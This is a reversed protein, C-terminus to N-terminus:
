DSLEIYVLLPDETDAMSDLYEGSSTKCLILADGAIFMDSEFSLLSTGSEHALLGNAIATDNSGLGPLRM